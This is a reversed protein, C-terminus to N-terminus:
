KGEIHSKNDNKCDDDSREKFIMKWWTYANKLYIKM